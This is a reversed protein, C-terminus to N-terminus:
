QLLDFAPTQPTMAQGPRSHQFSHSWSFNGLLDCKISREVAAMNVHFHLYLIPLRYSTDLQEMWNPLTEGILYANKQRRRNPEWSPWQFTFSGTFAEDTSHFQYVTIRIIERIHVFYSFLHTRCGSVARIVQSDAHKHYSSTILCWKMLQLTNM